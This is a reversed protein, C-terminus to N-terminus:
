LALLTELEGVLREFRDLAAEVPGPSAMDVGADRLLEIPFKSGGSSLFALHRELAGPEGALVKASLAIAASLGTAYQYVYFNYHFHPVRLCELDLQPDLAFRPGYYRELIEHYTRTLDDLSLPGKAEARAHIAQEFEAFMTQRFLTGRVDDIERHVLYARERPDSTRALLHESLLEEHFTSAVEAVFIAYSAYQPPQRRRSLYSHMAHGAEHALTFVSDLTDERYNLLIFPDCDYCGSSYAGSRKGRNEYRDVWGSLLGARLPEVYPEGMPALARCVLEVAEEYSVHQDPRAVLPVLLDYFHIEELDLARRRLEYYRHLAPLRRRVTSILNNPVSDPVDNKFLAARRASPFGRARAYFLNKKVGGALTAALAHKVSEFGEYYREFFRRRVARDPRCLFSHYSGHTVEVPEGKEDPITGFKLDANVLQGFAEHAAQAMEGSLALVREEGEGLTHPKYRLVQELVFRYDALSADGLFARMTADPIALIEPNAFSAAEGFRTSLGVMRDSFGKWHSNATDEDSKREAYVSLRRLIRSCDTQLALFEALRAPSEGLRGRYSAVLPLRGELGRFDQEWADVGPYLRSLDWCNKPDVDSRAPLTKPSTATTTTKPM